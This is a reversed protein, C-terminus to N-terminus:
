DRSRNNDDESHSEPIKRKKGQHRITEKIVLIIDRIFYHPLILFRLGDKISMTVGRM